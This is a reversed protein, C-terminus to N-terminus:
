PTATLLLTSRGTTHLILERGFTLSAETLDHQSDAMLRAPRQRLVDCLEPLSGAAAVPRRPTGRGWCANPHVSWSTSAMPATPPAPLEPYPFLVAVRGEADAVGRAVGGDPLALDLRAWAAPGGADLELQARVTAFGSPAPRACSSFVPVVPADLEPYVCSPRYPGPFPARVDLQMPLYRSQPDRLTLRYSREVPPHYWYAPDGVGREAEVLGPLGHLTLIGSPTRVAHYPAAPGADLTLEIGYMVPTGTQVDWPRIGLPAVITVVESVDFASTAGTV